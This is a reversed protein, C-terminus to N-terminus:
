SAWDNRTDAWWSKGSFHSHLLQKQLANIKGSLEVVRSRSFFLIDADM